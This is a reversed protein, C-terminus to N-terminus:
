SSFISTQEHTSERNIDNNNLTLKLIDFALHIGGPNLRCKPRTYQFAPSGAAALRFHGCTMSSIGLKDLSSAFVRQSVATFSEASSDMRSRSMSTDSAPELKVVSFGGKHHDIVLDRRTRRNRM